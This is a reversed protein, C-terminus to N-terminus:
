IRRKGCGVSSTIIIFGQAMVLQSAVEHAKERGVLLDINESWLRYSYGAGPQDAIKGPM